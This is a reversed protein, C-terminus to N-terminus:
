LRVGFAEWIMMKLQYVSTTGSVTLSINNGHNGKRARKSTRREPDFSASGDRISKPAEKGRVLVVTINENTYNLREM